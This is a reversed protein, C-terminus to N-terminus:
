HGTLGALEREHIRILSKSASLFTKQFNDHHHCFGVAPLFGTIKKKLNREKRLRSLVTSLALDSALKKNILHHNYYNADTM